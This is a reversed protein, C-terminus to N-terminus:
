LIYRLFQPPFPPQPPPTSVSMAKGLGYRENMDSVISFYRFTGDGSKKEDYVAATLLFIM